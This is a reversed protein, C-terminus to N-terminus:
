YTITGVATYSITMTMTMGEVAIVPESMSVTSFSGIANEFHGTGGAFQVVMPQDPTMKWFLQEGSAVTAVGAGSVIFFHDLDWIASSENIYLGGHTAV